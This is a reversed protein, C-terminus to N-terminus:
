KIWSKLVSSLTVSKLIVFTIGVKVASQNWQYILILPNFPFVTYNRLQGAATLETVLTWEIAVTGVFDPHSPRAFPSYTLLGAEAYITNM